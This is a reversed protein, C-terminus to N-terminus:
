IVIEISFEQYIDQKFIHDLLLTLMDIDPPIAYYSGFERYRSRMYFYPPHETILFCQIFYGDADLETEFIKRSYTGRGKLIIKETAPNVDLDPNKGVEKEFIRKGVKKLIQEKIKHSDDKSRDNSHCPTRWRGRIILYLIPM